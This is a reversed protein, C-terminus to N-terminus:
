QAEDSETREVGLVALLEGTPIRIVRGLRLVRTPWTGERISRYGLARGIGLVGFAEEATVVTRQRLDQITVPERYPGADKTIAHAKM